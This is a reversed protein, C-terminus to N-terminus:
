QGVRNSPSRARSTEFYNRLGSRRLRARLKRVVGRLTSRPVNMARATQSVSEHMLHEAVFGLEHPLHSLVEAVDMALNAREEDTRSPRDRFANRIQGEDIGQLSKVRRHDRKAASANRLINAVLHEAVVTIFRYRHGRAPDFSTLSELVRIILAHELDEWDQRALGARGVIQEIKRRIIGRTFRDIRDSSDDQVM